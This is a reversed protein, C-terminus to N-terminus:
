EHVEKEENWTERKEPRKAGTLPAIIVAVNKPFGQSAVTGLVPRDGAEGILSISPYKTRAIAYYADSVAIMLEQEEDSLWIWLPEGIGSGQLTHPFVEKGEKFFCSDFIQKISKRWEAPAVPIGKIDLANGVLMLEHNTVWAKKLLKGYMWGNGSPFKVANPKRRRGILPIGKQIEKEKKQVEAAKEVGPSTLLDDEDLLSADMLRSRIEPDVGEPITRSRLDSACLIKLDILELPMQVGERIRSFTYLM